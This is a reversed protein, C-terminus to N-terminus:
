LSTYWIEILNEYIKQTSQIRYTQTVLSWFTYMAYLSIKSNVSATIREHEVGPILRLMGYLLCIWAIKEPCGVNVHEFLLNCDCKLRCTTRYAVMEGAEVLVRTSISRVLTVLSAVLDVVVYLAFNM